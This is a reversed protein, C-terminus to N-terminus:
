FSPLNVLEHELMEATSVDMAPCDVYMPLKNLLRWLPRAMIGRSRASNIFADLGAEDTGTLRIANLWYNSRAYAPEVIFQVSDCNAMNDKYRNAQERRTKLKTEIKELQACGLAANINPMRYNYGVQDHELRWAHDTKATTTMHKLKTALEQNNCLVAGGGGTTMIKNGNFSLASVVGHNGVHQGKYYSGVAEAADEILLLKYKECIATLKDLDVPHGFTHVAILARIRRGTFRNFTEGSRQEVIDNLYDDLKECDVGLSEEGSDVFHPIAGCYAVANATAVFSIAPVLIEDNREVGIAVLSVHLAATGNCTVICYGAGTYESLMTEFKDVYSGVSSVWGTDICDNLYDKESGEFQPESLPYAERDGPLSRSILDLVEDHQSIM